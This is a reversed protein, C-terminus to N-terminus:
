ENKLDDDTLEEWTFAKGCYFRDERFRDSSSHQAKYWTYVPYESVYENNLIKVIGNIIYSATNKENIYLIENEKYIDKLMYSDDYWEAYQSESSLNYTNIESDFQNIEELIASQNIIDSSINIDSNLSFQINQIPGTFNIYNNLISENPKNNNFSILDQLLSGTTTCKVVNGYLKAQNKNKIEVFGGTIIDSRKFVKIIDKIKNMIDVITTKSWAEDDPTACINCTTKIFFIYNKKPPIIRLLYIPRKAYWNSAGGASGDFYAWDKTYNVGLSSNNFYNSNYHQAPIWVRIPYIPYNKFDLGNKTRRMLDEQSYTKGSPRDMNVLNFGTWHSTKRQVYDFYPWGGHLGVEEVIEDFYDPNITQENVSSTIEYDFCKNDFGARPYYEYEKYFGIETNQQIHFTPIEVLGTWKNIKLIVESNKISTTINIKENIDDWMPGHPFCITSNFNNVELTINTYSKAEPTKSLNNKTKDVFTTYKELSDKMNSFWDPKTFYVVNDSTCKVDKATVEGTVYKEYNSFWRDFTIQDYRTDSFGNMLKSAIILKRMNSNEFDVGDLNIKFCLLYIDEPVISRNKDFTETYKNLNITLTTTIDEGIEWGDVETYDPTDLELNTRIPIWKETEGSERNLRKLGWFLKAGVTNSMGETNFVVKLETDEENISYAFYNSGIKVLNEDFIKSDAIYVYEKTYQDYKINGIYPTAKIIIKDGKKVSFTFKKEDTNFYYQGNAMNVYEDKFNVISNEALPQQENNISITYRVNANIDPIINDKYLGDSMLMRFKLNISIDAPEKDTKFNPTNGTIFNILFNDLEPFCLKVALWGPIKWRVEDDETTGGMPQSKHVIHNKIFEDINTLNRNEDMIYFETKQYPYTKLKGTNRIEIIPNGNTDFKKNGNEDVAQVEETEEGGTWEIKVEDGPNIKWQEPDKDTFIQVHYKNLLDTYTLNSDSWDIYEITEQLTSGNNLKAGVKTSPYSGIETKDLVPNYSIIYLIGGYEKIGVPVYGSPLKCNNLGFNGMDNQLSFENGNYTIMTGNKCDTLATQPVNIPNIDKVMGETFTNTAQGM